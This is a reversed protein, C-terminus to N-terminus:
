GPGNQGNVLSNNPASRYDTSATITLTTMETGTAEHALSCQIQRQHQERLIRSRSM